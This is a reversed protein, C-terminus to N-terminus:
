PISSARGHRASAASAAPRQPQRSHSRNRRRRQQAVTAYMNATGRARGPRAAGLAVGAAAARGTTAMRAAPKSPTPASAQGAAAQITRSSAAAATAGSRHSSDVPLAATVPPVQLRCTGVVVLVPQPLRLQPAAATPGAAAAPARLPGPRGRGSCSTAGRPVRAAAQPLAALLARQRPELAMARWGARHAGHLQGFPPQRPASWPAAAAPWM